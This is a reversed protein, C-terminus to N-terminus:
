RVTVTAKLPLNRSSDGVLVTHTGTVPTWTKATTSWVSFARDQLPITVRRTQGPALMVKAFGKLQRPPEGASPPAAVYVQVVDAGARAGTNTVDVGVTMGDVRLNAFSFTTYSLGFGFPFLPTVNRADYWRYGVQLGETYHVTGGVGPYQEPTGAPTDTETRPFSMTLHGSPNVTGFLVDAVANGDEEGPYWAELV